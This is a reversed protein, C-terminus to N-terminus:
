LQLRYGMSLELGHHFVPPSYFDAPGIPCFQLFPQPLRKLRSLRPLKFRTCFAHPPANKARMALELVLGTMCPHGPIVKIEFTNFLSCFASFTAHSM